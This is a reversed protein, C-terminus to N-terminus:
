LFMKNNRYFLYYSSLLGLTLFRVTQDPGGAMLSSLRGTSGGVNELVGRWGGLIYGFISDFLIIVGYAVFINAVKNLFHIDFGIKALFISYVIIGLTPLFMRTIWQTFSINFTDLVILKILPIIISSISYIIILFLLIKWSTTNYIKYNRYKFIAFGFVILSITNSFSLTIGPFVTIWVLHPILFYIFTGLSFYSYINNLRFLVYLLLGLIGISPIFPLQFQLVEVDM